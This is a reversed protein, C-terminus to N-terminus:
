CTHFLTLTSITRMSQAVAVNRGLGYFTCDVGARALSQRQLSAVTCSVLTGTSLFFRKKCVESVMVAPFPFSAVYQSILLIDVTSLDFDDFYPM